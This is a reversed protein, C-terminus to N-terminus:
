KNLPRLVIENEYRRKCVDLMVHAITNKMGNTVLHIVTDSLNQRPVMQALEIVMKDGDVTYKDETSDSGAKLREIILQWVQASVAQGVIHIEAEWKGGGLYNLDFSASGTILNRDNGSLITNRGLNYKAMASVIAQRMEEPLETATILTIDKNIPDDVVANNRLQRRVMGPKNELVSRMYMDSELHQREVALLMAPTPVIRVPDDAAIGCYLEHLIAIIDKAEEADPALSALARYAPRAYKEMLVYTRTEEPVSYGEIHPFKDKALAYLRNTTDIINQIVINDSITNKSFLPVRIFQAQM